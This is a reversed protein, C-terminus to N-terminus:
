MVRPSRTRRSRRVLPGPHVRSNPIHAKLIELSRFLWWRQFPLVGFMFVLILPVNVVLTNDFNDKDGQLLLWPVFIIQCTVITLSIAGHMILDLRRWRLLSLSQRHDGDAAVRLEWAVQPSPMLIAKTFDRLTTPLSSPPGTNVLNAMRISSKGLLAFMKFSNVLVLPVLMIFLMSWQEEKSFLYPTHVSISFTAAFVAMFRLNIQDDCTGWNQTWASTLVTIIWFGYVLPVTWEPRELYIGYYFLGWSLGIQATCATFARRWNKMHTLETDTINEGRNQAMFMKRFRTSLVLLPLNILASFKRVLIISLISQAWLSDPWSFGLM